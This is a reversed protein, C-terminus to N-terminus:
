QILCRSPLSSCMVFMVLKNLPKRKPITKCNATPGTEIITKLVDVDLPKPLPKNTLQAATNTSVTKIKKDKQPIEETISLGLMRKKIFIMLPSTKIKNPKFESVVSRFNESKGSKDINDLIVLVLGNKFPIRKVMEFGKVIIKQLLRRVFCTISFWYLLFSNNRNAVPHIKAVIRKKDNIAIKPFKAVWNKDSNIM